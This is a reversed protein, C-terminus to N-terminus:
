CPQPANADKKSDIENPYRQLAEIVRERSTQIEARALREALLSDHANLAAALALHDRRMEGASDRLDLGLHFVRTLEDMTKSIEVTLRQNRSAAAISVHFDANSILFRTYSQHDKYQYTVQAAESIRRLDAPSAREAALRAANCELILRLEYVEEIDQATIPSVQYGMRALSRVFGEHALRRLAERVPTLGVQYREVLEAQAIWQGPSFLCTMIDNKISAYAQDSLSPDPSKKM